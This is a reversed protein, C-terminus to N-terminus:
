KRWATALRRIQQEVSDCQEGTSANAIAATLKPELREFEAWRASDGNAALQQLEQLNVRTAAKWRDDPECDSRYVGISTKFVVKKPEPKPEPKKEEPKPEPKPEAKPEVAVPAVAVPTPAAVPTSKAIKSLGTLEDLEPKPEPKPADAVVPPQTAPLDDQRLALGGFIALLVAAAIAAPVKWDRKQVAAADDVEAAPALLPVSSIATLPIPPIPTAPSPPQLALKITELRARVLTATAPRDEPHKALLENVLAALDAPVSIGINQLTPPSMRLHANLLAHVRAESEPEPPDFPKRGALMEFLIVGFSYLDAGPGARKGLAQEPAIYDPTGAVMTSSPTSSAAVDALAVPQQKALGFDLLKPVEVGGSGRALFINSPKLDRHIVGCGHAAELAALTQDAVHLVRLISPKGRALEEELTHGELFEMIMYQRGDPLGGFGVIDVINPHKLASLTQAERKFNAAMLEDSAVEPRLAKVAFRRDIFEHRAQYVLGMGGAGLLREIRYGGVVTGVLVDAALLSDVEVTM